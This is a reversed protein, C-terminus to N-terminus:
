AGNKYHIINNAVTNMCPVLNKPFKTAIAVGYLIHCLIQFQSTNCVSKNTHNVHGHVTDYLTYSTM